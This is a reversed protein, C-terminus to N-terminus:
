FAVNIMEVRNGGTEISFAHPNGCNSLDDSDRLDVIPMISHPADIRAKTDVVTGIAISRGLYRTGEAASHIKQLESFHTPALVGNGYERAHQRLDSMSQTRVHQLFNGLLSLDYNKLSIMTDDVPAATNLPGARFNTLFEIHAGVVINVPVIGAELLRAFEIASVTTVVPHRSPPLGEIKVATGVLTYDTISGLGLNTTRMKVDIVANANCLAAEEVLRAAATRWGEAHGRTWSFGYHLACTGTVTAVPRIGHSRMVLLEAPTMTAMWPMAGSAAGKLRDAVFGPLRNQALAQEWMAQRELSRRGAEPDSKGRGFFGM